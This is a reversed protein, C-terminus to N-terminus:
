KKIKDLTLNANIFNKLSLRKAQKEKTSKVFDYVDNGVPKVSWGDNLANYIFIMKQLTVDDLNKKDLPM